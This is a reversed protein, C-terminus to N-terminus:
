EKKCIKIMFNSGNYELLSFVSTASVEKVTCYRLKSELLVATLDSNFYHMLEATVQKKTDIICMLWLFKSNKVYHKSYPFRLSLAPGEM